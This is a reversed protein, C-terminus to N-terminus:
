PKALLSSGLAQALAEVKYLTELYEKKPDSDAVIGAGAHFDLEGTDMLTFSRILINLDFSPGPGLYGMSGTYFGRPEPELEQIIEMCRIKPCGTITGGPFVSRLIDSVRASSRRDAAITSVLHHVKAFSEVEAYRTVTVTGYQSVRGLDNRALDVLMLHEAQEKPNTKLEWLLQLDQIENPGRPRTGAIPRMELRDGEGRILREPSSSVVRFGRGRLMGMFPAPNIERLLRYLNTTDGRWQTQFRQSLNAQYIDGQSIYKQAQRVMSGYKEPSSGPIIKSVRFPETATAQISDLGAFPRGFGFYEKTMRNFALICSPKFFYFGPVNEKRPSNKGLEYSLSGFWAGGLSFPFPTIQSKVRSSGALSLSGSAPSQYQDDPGTRSIQDLFEWISFPSPHFGSHDSSWAKGDKEFFEEEAEGALIIWRSPDLTKGASELLLAPGKRSLGEFLGVWDTANELVGQETLPLVSQSFPALSM